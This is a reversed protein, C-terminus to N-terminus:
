AWGEKPIMDWPDKPLKDQLVENPDPSLLSNIDYETPDNILGMARKLEELQSADRNKRMVNGMLGFGQEVISTTLNDYAQDKMYDVRMQAMRAQHLLQDNRTQTEIAHLARRSEDTLDILTGQLDIANVDQEYLTSRITGLDSSVQAGRASVQQNAM